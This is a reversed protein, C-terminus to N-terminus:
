FHLFGAAAVAIKSGNTIDSRLEDELTSHINDILKVSQGRDM